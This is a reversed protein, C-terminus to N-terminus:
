QDELSLPVFRLDGGVNVLLLVAKKGEERIQEVMREVDEATAVPEQGVEVIVQGPQLGEADAPGQPDVGAILVGDVGDPIGFQRRAEETVPGLTLGLVDMPIPDDEPVATVSAPQVAAEEELLGLTVRINQTKGKRFVVVRVTSGVATDAVIRPLDRMEEIDTGNFRLIVDGAEIGSSQAPGGETVDAVLAGAARDLGLAEALEDNVQQIRVGLWGRKTTGFERLQEVVNAAITSPVAFGIGISGG